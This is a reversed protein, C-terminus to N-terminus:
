QACGDRVAAGRNFLSRYASCTLLTPCVGCVELTRGRVHRPGRPANQSATSFHYVLDRVMSTGLPNLGGGSSAAAARRARTHLNLPHLGGATASVAATRCWVCSTRKSVIQASHIVLAHGDLYTDNAVVLEVVRLGLRVHEFRVVFM